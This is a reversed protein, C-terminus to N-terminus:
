DTMDALTTETCHLSVARQKKDFDNPATIAVRQVRAALVAEAVAKLRQLVMGTLQEASFAVKQKSITLAVSPLNDSTKSIAFKVSDKLSQVSPHDYSRGLLHRFHYVTTAPSTTLTSKA